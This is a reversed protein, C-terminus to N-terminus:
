TTLKQALLYQFLINKLQKKISNQQPVFYFSM